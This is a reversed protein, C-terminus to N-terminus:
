VVTLLIRYIRPYVTIPPNAVDGQGDAAEITLNLSITDGVMFPLPFKNTSDNDYSTSQINGFRDPTYTAMQQYLTYCLNDSSTNSNTMYFNNQGDAAGSPLYSLSYENPVTCVNAIPVIISTFLPTLKSTDSNDYNQSGIVTYTSNNNFLPICACKGSIDSALNQVNRFININPNNFLENAIYQISDTEIIAETATIPGAPSHGLPARTGVTDSTLTAQAVNLTYFSTGETPFLTYYNIDSNPEVLYAQNINTSTASFMTQIDALSINYTAISDYTGYDMQVISASFDYKITTDFKALRFNYASM